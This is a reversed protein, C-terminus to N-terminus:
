LMSPLTSSLTSPLISPPTCDLANPLMSDLTGYAADHITDLASIQRHIMTIM